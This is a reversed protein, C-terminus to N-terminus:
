QREGGLLHWPRKNGIDKNWLHVRGQEVELHDRHGYNGSGTGRGRRICRNGGHQGVAAVVTAPRAAEPHRLPPRHLQPSPLRLSRPADPDIMAAV